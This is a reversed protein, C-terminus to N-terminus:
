STQFFIAGYHNILGHIRAVHIVRMHNDAAYSKLDDEHADPIWGWGLHHPNAEAIVCWTEPHESDGFETAMHVLRWGQNTLDVVQSTSLNTKAIWSRHYWGSNPIAVATYKWTNGSIWQSPRLDILRLGSNQLNTHLQSSTVDEWVTTKLGDKNEILIAAWKRPEGPSSVYPNLSLIRAGNAKAETNIEQWSDMETLVWTTKEDLGSNRIFAGAFFPTIESSGGSVGGGVCEITFPRFNEKVFPDPQSFAVSWSNAPVLVDKEDRPMLAAVVGPIIPITTM